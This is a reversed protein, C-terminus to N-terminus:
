VSTSDTPALPLPMWHTIRKLEYRESGDGCAHLWKGDRRYATFWCLNQENFTLVHSGEEDPMRESVPIPRTASAPRQQDQLLLKREVERAMTELVFPWNQEEAPSGPTCAQASDRLLKAAAITADTWGTSYTGVASAPPTDFSNNPIEKCSSEIPEIAPAPRGDVFPVNCHVCRGEFAEHKCPEISSVDAAERLMERLRYLAPIAGPPGDPRMGKLVRDMLTDAEYSKDLPVNNM